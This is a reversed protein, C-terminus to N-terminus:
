LEGKFFELVKNCFLFDNEIYCFHSGSEVILWSNKIIKNLKKAMYLPTQNDNKGWFLLVNGQIKKYYNKLDQNVVNVFTKKMYPPLSKYDESGYKNLCKENLLCHKVLFKKFKYEYIKFTKKINFKEKLGAGGTIVMKDIKFWQNIISAVRSGFSHCVVYFDDINMSELFIKLDFAYDFITYDKKLARSEGFGTFDVSLVSYGYQSLFNYLNIFSFKNGGWGHLFLVLKANPKKNIIYKM